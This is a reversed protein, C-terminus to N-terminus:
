GSPDPFAVAQGGEIRALYSLTAQRGGDFLRRAQAPTIDFDLPDHEAPIEVMLAKDMLAGRVTGSARVSAAVVARVLSAPGRVSLAEASESDLLKFALVPRDGWRALRLPFNSTLAGDAFLATRGQRLNSLPVPRYFFPVASSMRVARAVSFEEPVRGYRSLDDPIIVGRQHTLDTAIVRLSGEPLDGFRRVGKVKLLSRWVRELRDGRHHGLGLFLALHRGVFPLRAGPMSDALEPWPVATLADALEDPGYGAVVLAAVLSGSSTGVISEFRYGSEMAAAAAGAIAIGRVGGGAFVAHIPRDFTM